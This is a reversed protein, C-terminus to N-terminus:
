AFSRIARTRAWVGDLAYFTAAAAILTFTVAHTRTFPEGYILVALGLQCTPSIYQLVGVTTYRLRKGAMAFWLLPLATSAGSAVLLFLDFGDQGLWAGGNGAVVALYIAAAPTALASEIALGALPEVSVRKRLLGYVSFTGALLFAIWPFTGLGAALVVVSCAALTVALLQMPRLTEGLFIRALVVNLLPNIYYGLSGQMVRGSNVAYIFILWNGTILVTTLLLPLLTARNSLAAKVEGWRRSVALLAALFLFSFIVRHGIIVLSDVGQLQKWYIPFLGWTGFALVGYLIGAAASSEHKSM